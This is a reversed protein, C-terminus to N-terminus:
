DSDMEDDSDLGTGRKARASLQKIKGSVYTRVPDEELETTLVGKTSLYWEMNDAKLTKGGVKDIGILQHQMEGKNYLFLAPLRSNPWNEVAM